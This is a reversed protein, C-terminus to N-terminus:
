LFHETAQPAQKEAEVASCCHWAQHGIKTILNIFLLNAEKEKEPRELAPVEKDRLAAQMACNIDMEM